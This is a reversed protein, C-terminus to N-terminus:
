GGSSSDSVNGTNSTIALAAIGCVVLIAVFRAVSSFASSAKKEKQQSQSGEESSMHAQAMPGSAQYSSSEHEMIVIYGEKNAGLPPKGQELFSFLSRLTVM